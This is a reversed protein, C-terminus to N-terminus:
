LFGLDAGAKSWPVVTVGDPRKGDTRWHGLPEKKAPIKASQIARLIVDNLLDHRAIKGSSRKCSFSHLGKANM